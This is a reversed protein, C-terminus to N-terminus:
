SRPSGAAETCLYEVAFKRLQSSTSLGLKVRINSQHAEITKGSLHLQQAMERRLRGQGLLRFIELERNTLRTLPSPAPDQGGNMMRTLVRKVLRQGVVIEGTIVKRIAQILNETSDNKMLYGAAGARLAREAYLSEDHMSFVLILVDRQQAKLDKILEIGDRGPLSIDVIIIDPKTRVIAPLAEAASGAQGCVALDAEENICDAIGKRLLPHDDVLFIRTRATQPAPKTKPPM